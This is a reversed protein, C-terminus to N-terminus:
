YRCSPLVREELGGIMTVIFISNSDEFGKVVIKAFRFGLCFPFTFSFLDNKKWTSGPNRSVDEM